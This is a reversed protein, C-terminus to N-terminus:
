ANREIRATHFGEETQPALFFKTVQEFMEKTDTNAREPQEIRRKEIQELCEKNSLDIYLLEHPAEIESFISKFWERQSVTNAPFDM